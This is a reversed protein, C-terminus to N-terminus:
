RAAEFSAPCAVAEGAPGHPWWTADMGDVEVAVKGNGFRRGTEDVPPLPAPAMSPPVQLRREPTLSMTVRGVDPCRVIWANIEGEDGPRPPPEGEILEALRAFHPLRSLGYGALALVVLGVAITTARSLFSPRPIPEPRPTIARLWEQLEGIPRAPLGDEGSRFTALDPSVHISLGRALVIEIGGAEPWRHDSFFTWGGFEALRAGSEADRLLISEPAETEYATRPDPYPMYDLALRRDPSLVRRLVEPGPRDELRAM